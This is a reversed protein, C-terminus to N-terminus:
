KLNRMLSEKRLRDELWSPFKIYKFCDNGFEKHIEKYPRYRDKYGSFRLARTEQSYRRTIKDKLSDESILALAGKKHKVKKIEIEFLHGCGFCEKDTTMLQLFCEPCTKTSIEQGKLREGKKLSEMSATRMQYTMGHRRFNNAHDLFIAEKKEYVLESSGCKFCTPDGGYENGCICVKCPRLIRGRQQIDLIESMTPRALIGVEAFPMDCGTSFIGVNCLVKIRGEKLDNIGAQRTKSDDDSDYHAAKIGAENFARAMTKSHHVNVAFLVAAKDEGYKKYNEVVDGVVSMDNMKNALDGQHFDGAQKRLSSFDYETPAYAKEPVLFGRDRLESAEIPIVCSDWWDHGKRGVKFPTATMGIFFNKETDMWNLFDRYSDSTTDHCEDVIVVASDKLGDLGGKKYRRQLTDISCVQVPNSLNLGKENGMIVSAEIDHYKKFNSKTQHILERRRMVNLISQGRLLNLRNLESMILGKGGGTMVWLIIKRDGAKIRARIQDIGKQQYDRLKIM